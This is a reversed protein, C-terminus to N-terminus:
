QAGKHSEVRKAHKVLDHLATRMSAADPTKAVVVREAAGEPIRTAVNRSMAAILLPARTQGAADLFLVASRPSMLPVIVPATGDLAARAAESLPLAEQDYVVVERAAHGASRLAAAIDAAVHAGRPHLFPGRAGDAAIRALLSPADGEAAITTFGRQRAAEATARGVAYATLDRRPSLRCVGEVGHCSTFILVEGPVPPPLTGGYTIRMLPSIIVEAGPLAARLDAAFHSASPEPRTILLRPPM